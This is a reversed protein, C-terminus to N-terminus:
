MFLYLDKTLQIFEDSYMESENKLIKLKDKLPQIEKKSSFCMLLREVPKNERSYVETLCSLFLGYKEAMEIFRIGELYPLIVFFRGEKSLLKKVGLLLNGHGLKITHRVSAKNENFSFTGGSFFPPNSVIVDYKKDKQQQFELFDAHHAFIRKELHNLLFNDRSQIFANKDIDVADIILNENKQALMLAIVGTGSGIDLASNADNVDTWAGLMIGDTNVKMQCIDQHVTFRKFQFIYKDTTAVRM